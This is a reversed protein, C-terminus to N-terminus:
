SSKPVKRVSSSPSGSLNAGPDDSVLRTCSTVLTGDRTRWPLLLREYRAPRRPAGMEAHYEMQATVLDYRPQGSSAVSKYFESVWAGYERDPMEDIPHGVGDLRYGDGGWRQAGGMFRLIPQSDHTPFSLLVLRPLLDHRGALGMVSVDFNGFAVRWKMAMPGLGESRRARDDFLAVPDQPEVRFRDHSPPEFVPACLERLRAMTHEPSASIESHWDDELYKVRFLNTSAESLLREVALLARVDVNRPHLEIETVLRDLVQFKIFGLNRVAFGVADYDPAPDGLAALFEESDPLVLKGEATVLMTLLNLRAEAVGSLLGASFIV